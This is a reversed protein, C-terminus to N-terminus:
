QIMKETYKRGSNSATNKQMYDLHKRRMIAVARNRKRDYRSLMWNVDTLELWKRGMYDPYSCWWYDKPRMVIGCEVPLLHLKISYREAAGAGRLMKVSDKRFAGEKKIQYMGEMMELYERKVKEIFKETKEQSALLVVHMENRLVCYALIQIQIEEQSKKAADLMKKKQIENGFLHLNSKGRLVAYCIQTDECIRQM